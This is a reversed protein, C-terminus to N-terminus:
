TQLAKTFPKQSRKVLKKNPVSKNNSFQQVKAHLFYRM